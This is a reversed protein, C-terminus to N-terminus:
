LGARCRGRFVRLSHFDLRSARCAPLARDFGTVISQIPVIERRPVRWVGMKCLPMDVSGGATGRLSQAAAPGGL